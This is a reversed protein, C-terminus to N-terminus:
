SLDSEPKSIKNKNKTSHNKLFIIKWKKRNALLISFFFPVILFFHGLNTFRLTQEITLDLSFADKSSERYEVVCATTFVTPVSLGALFCGHWDVLNPCLGQLAFM